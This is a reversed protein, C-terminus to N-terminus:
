TYGLSAKFLLLLGIVLLSIVTGVKVYWLTAVATLMLALWAWSESVLLGVGAILWILGLVVFVPGIAFPDIGLRAVIKSWAGPKEPGFYKGKRLVHLGDFLMWGGNLLALLFLVVEFVTCDQERGGICRLLMRVALLIFVLAM